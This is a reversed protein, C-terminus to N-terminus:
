RVADARAAKGALVRADRDTAGTAIAHDYTREWADTFGDVRSTWENDPLAGYTEIPAFRAAASLASVHDHGAERYAHYTGADATGATVAGDLEMEDHIDAERATNMADDHDEGTALAQMYACNHADPEQASRLYQGCSACRGAPHQSDANLANWGSIREARAQALDHDPHNDDWVAAAEADGHDAGNIRADLYTTPDPMLRYAHDIDEVGAGAQEARRILDTIRAQERVKNGATHRDGLEAEGGRDPGPDSTSEPEGADRNRVALYNNLEFADSAVIDRGEENTFIMAPSRDDGDTPVGDRTQKILAPSGDIHWALVEIDTGTVPCHHGGAMFQGCRGCQATERDARMTDPHPVTVVVPLGANPAAPRKPTTTASCTHDETAPGGCGPYPTVAAGPQQNAKWRAHARDADERHGLGKALIRRGDAALATDGAAEAAAITREYGARGADTAAYEVAAKQLRSNAREATAAKRALASPPEKTTMAAALAEDATKKATSASQLLKVAHHSCRLGGQEKAKCM